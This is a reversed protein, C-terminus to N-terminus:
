EHPKKEVVFIDGRQEVINYKTYFENMSVSDDVTVEYCTKTKTEAPYAFVSGSIAGILLGFLIGVLAGMAAGVATFDDEHGLLGGIIACMVVTSLIAIGAVSDNFGGGAQTVVEFENLITVGEM